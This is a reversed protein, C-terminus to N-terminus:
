KNSKVIVRVPLGNNASAKTPVSMIAITPIFNLGSLCYPDDGGFPGCDVGAIGKGKAVSTNTLKCNDNQIGNVFVEEFSAFFNNNAFTGSNPPNNRFINKQISCNLLSNANQWGYINSWPNDMIINNQITSNSIIIQGSYNNSYNSSSELDFNVTSCINNRITIGNSIIGDISGDFYNKQIFIGNSKTLTIGSIRNGSICISSVTDCFIRNTHLGSILTSKAGSKFRIDGIRSPSVFTTLSDKTNEPLFYGVGYVTLQKNIVINGYNGPYVYITDGANAGDIAKQLDGYHPFYSADKSVKWLNLASGNITIIL